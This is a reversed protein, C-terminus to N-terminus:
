QMKASLLAREYKEIIKIKSDSIEKLSSVTEILQHVVQHTQHFVLDLPHPLHWVLEVDDDRLGLADVDTEPVDRLTQASHGV